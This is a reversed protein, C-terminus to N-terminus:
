LNTLTGYVNTDFGEQQQTLWVKSKKMPHNKGIVTEEFAEEKVVYVDDVKISNMQLWRKLKKLQYYPLPELELLKQDKMSGSLKESTGDSLQDAEDEEVTREEFFRAHLRMSFIQIDSFDLGAFSNINSVRLLVTEEHAEQVDILDSSAIITDITPM